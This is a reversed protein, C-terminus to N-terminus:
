INRRDTVWSSNVEYLWNKLPSPSTLIYGTLSMPVGPPNQPQRGGNLYQSVVVAIGMSQVVEWGHVCRRKVVVHVYATSRTEAAQWSSEGRGDPFWTCSYGFRSRRSSSCSAIERQQRNRRWANHNKHLWSRKRNSSRRVVPVATDRRSM